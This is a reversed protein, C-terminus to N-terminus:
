YRVIRWLGDGANDFYIDYAIDYLQGQHTERRILRYRAYGDEAVVMQIEPLNSFDQAIQPLRSELATFIREYKSKTVPSFYELADQKDGAAMAQLMASWKAKLMADLVATDMVCVAVTDTHRNYDADVTEITLFYFGPNLLDLLYQINNDEITNMAGSSSYSLNTDTIPFAGTVYLGTELPGVGSQTSAEIYICESFNGANVMVSAEVVHGQADTATITITNVGEELPVHNVAFQNGYVMAVKGNVTIGTEGGTSNTFTGHVMVDSRNISEGNSPSLIEITIPSVVTVAATATISGGPGVATITYTTDSTPSVEVSGSSAVTGIGNDISVNDANASTWTLIVSEGENIGSPDSSLTVTPVPIVVAITTQASASGGPGNVTITYTTDSTPSVAVSGNSAVTGIGNDISVTDANASTWTLTASEGINIGSPDSSLTVAPVPVIVTITAQASTTGGPGTATITYTTDSTPSVVVSGSPDVTGIGNDISVNDANASTWTLTASEGLNIGSPDSSLTVTPDPAVVYM